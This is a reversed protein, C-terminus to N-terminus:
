IRYFIKRMKRYKGPVKEWTPKLRQVLSHSLGSLIAFMTNYNRLDKLYKAIKIMHRLIEARRTSSQEQLITTITWYLHNNTMDEFKSINVHLHPGHRSWLDDLYETADIDCFVLSDIRTFEQTIVQPDLKLIQKHIKSEKIIEQQVEEQILTALTDREKLYYRSNLGIFNHLDALHEPLVSNRVPGERGAVTVLTICYNQRVNQSLDDPFFERVVREIVEGVTTKQSVSIFKYSHDLTYLKIVADVLTGSKGSTNTNIVTLPENLDITNLNGVFSSQKIEGDTMDVGYAAIDDVSAQKALPAKWKGSSRREVSTTHMSSASRPRPPHLDTEELDYTSQRKITKNVEKTVKHTVSRLIKVPDRLKIRASGSERSSDSGGRSKAQLSSGHPRMPPPAPINNRTQVTSATDMQDIVSSPTNRVFSKYAPFNRKVVLELKYNNQLLKQAKTLSMKECNSNNISVLQDGVRLGKQHATSGVLVGIVFILPEMDHEGGIQFDIVTKVAERELEIPRPKSYTSRAIDLVRLPGLKNEGKLLEKFKDLFGTMEDDGDFDGYHNTVWHLVIHIIRDHVETRENWSTMLKDFIQGPSTLFTRYTLPFDAPYSDDVSEELLHDLLQDPTAQIIFYGERKPGAARLEMVKVTKEEEDTERKIHEEGEHIIESFESIHLFGYQCDKSALLRGSHLTVKLSQNIGYSEGAHLLKEQEQERCFKLCGNLLSAARKSSPKNGGNILSVLKSSRGLTSAKKPSPPPSDSSVSGQKPSMPISSPISGQRSTRHM